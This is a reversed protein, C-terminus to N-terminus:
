LLHPTSSADPLYRPWLLPILACLEFVSFIARDFLFCIFM